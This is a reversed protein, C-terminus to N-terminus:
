SKKYERKTTTNMRECAGMEWKIRNNRTPGRKKKEFRGEDVKKELTNGRKKMVRIEKDRM